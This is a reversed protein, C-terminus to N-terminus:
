FHQAALVVVIEINVVVAVYLGLGFLWPPIRPPMELPIGMTKLTAKLGVGEIACGWSVM